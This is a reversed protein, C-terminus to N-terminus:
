FYYTLQSIIRRKNFPQIDILQEKIPQYYSFELGVKNIFLNLGYNAFLVEGGSDMFPENEYTDRESNEYSLGINPMVKVKKFLKVLYFASTNFNLRNAFKFGNKNTTNLKYSINSNLGLGKYSVLHELLFLYGFSGTGAQLHPDLEMVPVSTIGTPQFDTQFSDVNEKNFKGTPLTIGAGVSVRHIPKKSSSDEQEISNFVQYKLLLNLDGFGGINNLISDNEYTYNDSFNVTSNIQFKTGIYFNASVDYSNFAEAYRYTEGPAIAESPTGAHKNNERLQQKRSVTQSLQNLDFDREFLRYRHRVSFSNKFDNPQIGLYVTCLDCAFTLNSMLVLALLAVLNKPM